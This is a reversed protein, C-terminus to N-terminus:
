VVLRFKRRRIERRNILGEELLTTTVKEGDREVEFTSCRPCLYVVGGTSTPIAITPGLPPNYLAAKREGIRSAHLRCEVCPEREEPTKRGGPRPPPGVELLAKLQADKM